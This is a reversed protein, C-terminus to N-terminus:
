RDQLFPSAKSLLVSCMYFSLRYRNFFHFYRAISTALICVHLIGLARNFSRLADFSFPLPLPLLVFIRFKSASTKKKKENLIQGNRVVSKPSCPRPHPARPRSPSQRRQDQWLRSARMDQVWQFIYQIWKYRMNESVIWDRRCRLNKM